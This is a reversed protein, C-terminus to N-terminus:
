GPAAPRSRYTGPLAATVTRRGQALLTAAVLALAHRWTAATCYGRFSRMRAVLVETASAPM